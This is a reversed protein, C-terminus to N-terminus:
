AQEGSEASDADAEDETAPEPQATDDEESEAAEEDPETSASAEVAAEAVVETEEAPEPEAEEVVDPVVEVGVLGMERAPLRLNVQHSGLHRLPERLVVDRRDIEIQHQEALATAVQQSTVSGHLRGGEGIQAPITVTLERLRQALSRAEAAEQEAAQQAEGRLRQLRKMQHRTGPVALGRPLLYNRAYGPAVEKVDGARGLEVVPEVLIVRM